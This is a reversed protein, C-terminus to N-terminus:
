KYEEKIMADAYRFKAEERTYTPIGCPAMRQEHQKIDDESAHAALWMRLTMGPGSGTGQSEDYGHNKPVTPFAPGGDNTTSM